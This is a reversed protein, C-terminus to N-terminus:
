GQVHQLVFWKFAPGRHKRIEYPWIWGEEQKKALQQNTAKTKLEM